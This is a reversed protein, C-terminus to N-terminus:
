VEAVPHLRHARGDVEVVAQRAERPLLSARLAVCLHARASEGISFTSGRSAPDNSVNLRRGNGNVYVGALERSQWHGPTDLLLDSPISRGVSPQFSTRHPLM